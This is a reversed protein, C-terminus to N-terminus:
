FKIKEIFPLVRYFLESRTTYNGKHLLKHIYRKIM